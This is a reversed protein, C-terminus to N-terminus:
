YWESFTKHLLWKTPHQYDGITGYVSGAIEPSGYRDRIYQLMGIAEELPIWISARGHPLYWENSMTLQGLWVATSIVWFERHALQNGDLDSRTLSRNKMESGSIGANKLTYNERWVIGASEHSLIRHLERNTWWLKADEISMWPKMTMAALTFLQMTEKSGPELQLWFQETKWKEVLSTPIDSLSQKEEDTLETMGRFGQFVASRHKKNYETLLDESIDLEKIAETKQDIAVYWQNIYYALFKKSLEWNESIYGPGYDNSFHDKTREFETIIEEIQIARKSANEKHIQSSFLHIAINPAIWRKQSELILDYNPNTKYQETASVITEEQIKIEESTRVGQIKIVTDERIILRQGNTSFFEGLLWNRKWTIWNSNVEKVSTPLVQGATTKLYLNSNTKNNFKFTFNIIDQDQIENSKKSPKTIHQLRSERAINLFESSSYKELIDVSLEERAQEPDIKELTKKPKEPTTTPIHIKEIRTM